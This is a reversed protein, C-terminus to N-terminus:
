NPMFKRLSNYSDLRDDLFPYKARTKALDNPDVDLVMLTEDSPFVIEPHTEDVWPPCFISEGFFDGARNLSLLYVLNEMARTVAFQHWSYFSEDRAYAGCHLVLQVSNEVCLTRLMEPIRIDYCIVPAVRIGKVNFVLLQDGREFYEKEMSAGYQAIHVKDYHGVLNGQDDLVVQAIRYQGDHKRAIGFVIFVSHQRALKRFANVTPGDLSEALQDLNDFTARSYDISSLEPLVVVDVPDNKLRADIKGIVSAVHVDREGFTTMPPIDIQCALVKLTM